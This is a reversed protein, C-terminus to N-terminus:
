AYVGDDLISLIQEVMQKRHQELSIGCGEGHLRLKFSEFLVNTFTLGLIIDCIVYVQVDERLIGQRKGVELFEKLKLPIHLMMRDLVAKGPESPDHMENVVIRLMDARKVSDEYFQHTFQRLKEIFDARDRPPQLLQDFLRHREGWTEELCTKYLTEKGQFHYSVAALNCGAEQSLQRVSVGQYGHRGFLSRAARLLNIKTPHLSSANSM